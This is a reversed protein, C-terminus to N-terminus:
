AIQETIIMASAHPMSHVIWYLVCLFRYALWLDKINSEASFFM